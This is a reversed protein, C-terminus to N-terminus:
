PQPKVNDGFFQSRRKIDREDGIIGTDAETALKKM